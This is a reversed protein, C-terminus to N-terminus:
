MDSNIENRYELHHLRFIIYYAYMKSGRQAQSRLQIQFCIDQFIQSGEHNVQNMEM